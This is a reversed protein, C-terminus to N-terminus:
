EEETHLYTCRGNKLDNCTDGFRCPRSFAAGKDQKLARYSDDEDDYDV